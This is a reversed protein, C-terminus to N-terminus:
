WERGARSAAALPEGGATNLAFYMTKFVFIMMKLEFDMTKFVFNIMKFVQIAMELPAWRDPEVCGHFTKKGRVNWFLVTSSDMHYGTVTGAGSVRLISYCRDVHAVIKEVFLFFFKFHFHQFGCGM